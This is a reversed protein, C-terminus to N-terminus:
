INKENLTFHYSLKDLGKVLVLLEDKFTTMETVALTPHTQIEKYSNLLIEKILESKEYSDICQAEVLLASRLERLVNYIPLNFFYCFNKNLFCPIAKLLHHEEEKLHYYNEFSSSIIKNM